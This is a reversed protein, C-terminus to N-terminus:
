PQLAASAPMINWTIKSMPIDRKQIVERKAKGRKWVYRRLEGRNDDAVYLEDAGNGDLDTLLAAHEFGGSDRDIREVGWEGKPNSGPRLLWLGSSFAAAVLEKKGDGDVDGATLFRCFRDPLTAIVVSGDAKTGEDYRRIEVPEVIKMESGKGTMRAEVAVYLEDRGDGDVDGVYIEKAHRAGLDAVVERGKGDKPVYRVVEGHQSEADLKNPDSPTAYVELTGDGNLDGLEIEHVFTDKKRDIKNVKWGDKSKRLVAVVGQDHTAVAIAPDGDGYVDGIEADRMRDFRGGFKENWLTKSKFGNGDRTWLKISAGMAGLTLIGEEGMAEGFDVAKHFVNSGKDEIVESKWMGEQPWLIEVRAPGPKATAKGDVVEFQSYALLLGRQGKAEPKKEEVQPAPTAPASSPAQTAEAPPAEKKGCGAGVALCVFPILITYRTNLSLM